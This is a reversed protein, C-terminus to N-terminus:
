VFAFGYKYPLKKLLIVIEMLRDFIFIEYYKNRSDKYIYTHFVM